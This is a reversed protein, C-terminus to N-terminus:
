KWDSCQFHESFNEHLNQQFFLESIEKLFFRSLISSTTVLSLFQEKRLAPAQGGGTFTAIGGASTFDAAVRVHFVGLKNCEFVYYEIGIKAVAESTRDGITHTL